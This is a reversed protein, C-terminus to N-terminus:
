NRSCTRNVCRSHRSLLRAVARCAVTRVSVEKLRMSGDVLAILEVWPLLGLARELEAATHPAEASQRSMLLRVRRAVAEPLADSRAETDNATGVNPASPPPSLLGCLACRGPTLRGFVAWQWRESVGCCGCVECVCRGDELHVGPPRFDIHTEGVVEDASRSPACGM